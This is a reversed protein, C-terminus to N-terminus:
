AAEVAGNAKQSDPALDIWVIFPPYGLLEPPM